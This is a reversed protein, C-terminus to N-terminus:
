LNIICLDNFEVFNNELFFAISNILDDKSMYLLKSNNPINNSWTANKCNIKIYTKQSIKFGLDLMLRIREILQQHPILTYLTSFDGTYISKAKGYMNLTEIHDHVQNSNDIVWCFGIHHLTKLNINM